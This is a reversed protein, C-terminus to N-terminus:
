PFFSVFDDEFQFEVQAKVCEGVARTYPIGAAEIWAEFSEKLDDRCGDRDLGSCRLNECEDLMEATFETVVCCRRKCVKCAPSTSKSATSKSVKEEAARTSKSVKEEATRTSVTSTTVKESPICVFRPVSILKKSLLMSPRPIIKPRHGPTELVRQKTRGTSDM